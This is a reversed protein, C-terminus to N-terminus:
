MNEAHPSRLMQSLSSLAYMLGGIMGTAFRLFYFALSMAVATDAPVGVAGFFFVFAGERVGLGNFTIPLVNLLAFIPVFLGFVAFPLTVDFARAICYQLLVLSLTFPISILLSTLLAGLPYRRVTDALQELKDYKPLMTINPFISSLFDLPRTWRLVAFGVPIGVSVAAIALWLAAPLDIETTHSLANWALALLAIIASGMLGTVRDMLVSSLAEAGRGFRQRLGVVKIVDGGFGSPIFNNAFFGVFYLYIMLGFSPRDNLSRLLVHWRYARIIVNLVFLGFAIMYWNWQITRLSQVVDELGVQHLLYGLLAISLLLQLIGQIKKNRLMVSPNYCIGNLQM